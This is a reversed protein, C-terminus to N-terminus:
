SKKSRLIARAAGFVIYRSVYLLIKLVREYARKNFPLLWYASLVLVIVYSNILNDKLLVYGSKSSLNVRIPQIWINRKNMHIVICFNVIFDNSMNIVVYSTNYFFPPSLM